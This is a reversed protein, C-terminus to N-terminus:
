HLTSSVGMDDQFEAILEIADTILELASAEDANALAMRDHEIRDCFECLMGFHDTNMARSAVATFRLRKSVEDLLRLRQEVTLESFPQQNHKRSAVQM